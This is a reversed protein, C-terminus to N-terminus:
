TERLLKSSNSAPGVILQNSFKWAERFLKQPRLLFNVSSQRSFNQDRLTASTSARIQAFSWDFITELALCVSSTVSFNSSPTVALFRFQQMYLNETAAARKHLISCNRVCFSKCCTKHVNNVAKEVALTFGKILSIPFSIDKCESDRLADPASWVKATEWDFSSSSDPGSKM